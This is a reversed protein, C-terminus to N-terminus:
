GKREKEKGEKEKEAEVGREKEKKEKPAEEGGRERGSAEVLQLPSSQPSSTPSNQKEVSLQKQKQM